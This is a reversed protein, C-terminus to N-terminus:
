QTAGKKAGAEQQAALPETPSLQPYKAMAEFISRLSRRAFPSLAGGTLEDVVEVGEDITTNPTLTM